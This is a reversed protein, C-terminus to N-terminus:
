AITLVVFFNLLKLVSCLTEVFYFVIVQAESSVNQSTTTKYLLYDKLLKM